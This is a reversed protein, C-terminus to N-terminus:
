FDLKPLYQEAQDALQLAIKFIKFLASAFFVRLLFLRGQIKMHKQMASRVGSDLISHGAISVRVSKM